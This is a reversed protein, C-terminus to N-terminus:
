AGAVVLKGLAEGREMVRHADAIEEFAFVRSPAATYAGAEVKGVIDQLPIASLPFADTGVEFSGFFSFHVGSPMQLLPNFEPL